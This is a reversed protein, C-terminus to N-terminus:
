GQGVCVPPLIGTRVCVGTPPASPPAVPRPSATPATTRTPVPSPSVPAEPEDGVPPLIVYSSVGPAPVVVTSAPAPVVPLAVPPTRGEVLAKVQAELLAQKASNALSREIVVTAIRTPCGLRTAEPDLARASISSLLLEVCQTNVDLQRATERRDAGAKSLTVLGVALFILSLFVGLWAVGALYNIRVRHAM